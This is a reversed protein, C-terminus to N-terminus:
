VMSPVFAALTRQCSPLIATADLFVLFSVHSDNPAASPHQETTPRNQVQQRTINTPPVFHSRRTQTMLTNTGRYDTDCHSPRRLTPRPPSARIVTTLRTLAHPPHRPTLLRHLAHFAAFLRPFSDFLRQDRSEQIVTLQICLSAPRVHHVSVDLYGCSFFAIAIGKTAALSFPGTRWSSLLFFESPFRFWLPHYDRIRFRYNNVIRTPGTVHFGTQVHSAWRGLSFVRQRGITFLLALSLHFTGRRPSNFTGSVM